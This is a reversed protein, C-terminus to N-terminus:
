TISAAPWPSSGIKGKAVLIEELKEIEKNRGVIEYKM